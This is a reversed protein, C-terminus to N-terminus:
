DRSDSSRQARDARSMSQGWPGELVEPMNDVKKFWIKRERLTMGGIVYSALDRSELVLERCKTLASCEQCTTKAQDYTNKNSFLDPIVTCALDQKLLDDLLQKVLITDITHGMVRRRVKKAPRGNWPLSGALSTVNSM